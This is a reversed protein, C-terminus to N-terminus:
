RPYNYFFATIKPLPYKLIYRNKSLRIGSFNLSCMAKGHTQIRQRIRGERKSVQSDGLPGLLPSVPASSRPPRTAIASTRSGVPFFCAPSTFKLIFYKAYLTIKFSSRSFNYSPVPSPLHILKTFTSKERRVSQFTNSIITTKCHKHLSTTCTRKFNTTSTLKSRFAPIKGPKEM